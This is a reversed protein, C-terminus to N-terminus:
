KIPTNIFKNMVKERKQRGFAFYGQPIDPKKFQIRVPNNFGMKYPANV